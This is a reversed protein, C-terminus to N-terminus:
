LPPCPHWIGIGEAGPGEPRLLEARVVCAGAGHVMFTDNPVILVGFVRREGERDGGCM